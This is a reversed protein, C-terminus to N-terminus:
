YYVKIYDALVKQFLEDNEFLLEQVREQEEYNNYDIGNQECYFEITDWVDSCGDTCILVSSNDNWDCNNHIEILIERLEKEENSGMGTTEHEVLYCLREYDKKPMVVKQLQFSHCDDPGYSIFDPLHKKKCKEIARQKNTEIDFV